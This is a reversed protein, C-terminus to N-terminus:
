DAEVCLFDHGEINLFSTRGFGRQNQVLFSLNSVTGVNRSQFSWDLESTRKFGTLKSGIEVVGPLVIPCFLINWKSAEM